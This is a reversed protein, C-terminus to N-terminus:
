ADPIYVGVIIYKSEIKNLKFYNYYDNRGNPYNYKISVWNNGLDDDKEIKTSIGLNEKFFSYIRGNSKLEELSTFTEIYKNDEGQGFLPFQIISKLDNEDNSQAVKRARKLFDELTEQEFVETFKKSEVAKETVITQEISTQIQKKCAMTCVLVLTIFIYKIHLNMKRLKWILAM